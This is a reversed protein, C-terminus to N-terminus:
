PGSREPRLRQAAPLLQRWAVDQGPDAVARPLKRLPSSHRDGYSGFSYVELADGFKYAANFMANYINYQPAGVVGNERPYNEANVVNKNVLNNAANGSTFASGAPNISGDPNQFRRDGVGVITEEGYRQELTVNVYGNDGLSFGKNLAWAGTKGEGKYNQGGTGTIYGGESNKKLIVNVVGAIADTGYQAAAGDTLVEIHEISGVPIFSLDTTASGSYASGGLVALNSTVHRRKGNVLVLTDNPSLGRLAAQISLAALDGGTNNINLSPVSTSLSSALDTVGTRALAEAGVVQIPAASDAAKVGVTRTGTVILEGVETADADAAFAPAALAAALVVMSAGTLLRKM